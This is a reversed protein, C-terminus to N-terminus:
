VECLVAWPKESHSKDGHGREKWVTCLIEIHWRARYLIFVEQWTLDAEPVNTVLITWDCLALRQKSVMRGHKQAAKKITRKREDAVLKPVRVAILRSPIQMKTGLVTPIDVM